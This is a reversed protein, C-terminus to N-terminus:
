LSQHIVELVNKLAQNDIQGPASARGASGFTVASGFIEGSIRSIVGTGAMSMTIIPQDPYTETMEATAALLTLVDAKNQPMVAIKSIDAGLMQMKRLKRVIEERDPTGQFDHNSIIVKVSANHAAAILQKLVTEECSLEVDLLDICGTEIATLNLSVYDRKDIQREGGERASRFTFLLPIDGLIERLGGLVGKLSSADFVSEFWDARWEVLDASTKRIQEAQRYIEKKVDGVIPVCIKPIGNGIKMNRVIVPTM